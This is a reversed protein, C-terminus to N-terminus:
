VDERTGLLEDPPPPTALADQLLVRRWAPAHLPLLWYRRDRGFVEELNRLAGRDYPWPSCASPPLAPRPLNLVGDGRMATGVRAM